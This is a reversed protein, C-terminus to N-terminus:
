VGGNVLWASDIQRSLSMCSGDANCAARSMAYHTCTCGVSLSSSTKLVYCGDVDLAQPRATQVVVGYSRHLAPEEEDEYAGFLAGDDHDDNSGHFGGGVGNAAARDSSAEDCCDGVSGALATAHTTAAEGPHKPCETPLDDFLAKVVVVGVFDGTGLHEAEVEALLEAWNQAEAAEGLLPTLPDEPSGNCAFAVTGKHRNEPLSLARVLNPVLMNLWADGSNNLFRPQQNQTSSSGAEHKTAHEVLASVAM